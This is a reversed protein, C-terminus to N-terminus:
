ETTPQLLGLAFLGEADTFWAGIHLGTGALIDEVSARTYKCSVETRIEDGAALDLVVDVARIEVRMPHRARLRMEIRAQAEDYFSVHDFAEPEFDADFRANVVSLINRNFAETVGQADNYAAELRATDKVLDFGVLFGDGAVMQGRVDTVFRTAADPLLNGITGALFLILRDGGAGLRNLDGEFDGAIGLVDLGPYEERLRAESERLMSESIDFLLCSERLGRRGMADLLIRIKRGSGSGLEALRRPEVLDLIREASAELIAEETRTPYYEPLRTIEDFLRGGREDYLYKSPIEPLDRQLAQRLEAIASQDGGYSVRPIM